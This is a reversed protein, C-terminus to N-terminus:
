SEMMAVPIPTVKNAKPILISVTQKQEQPASVKCEIKDMQTNAPIKFKRDFQLNESEAKVQIIADNIVQVDLDEPKINYGQLEVKIEMQSLDEKVSVNQSTRKTVVPEVERKDDSHKELDARAQQQCDSMLENDLIHNLWHMPRQVRRPHHLAPHFYNFPVMPEDVFYFVM